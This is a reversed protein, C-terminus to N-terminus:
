AIMKDVDVSRDLALEVKEAPISLQNEVLWCIQHIIHLHVEQIRETDHSPVLLNYDGYDKAEGGDKGLLNVTTIGMENAQKLANVINQSNGSTSICLLLDGERGLAQVQRRFIHDLGFDNAWATMVSTESNLSIAAYGPREAIEFRGVLEAVFHQSEAASGGNGCVMIKGGNAIVRSMENSIEFIDEPLTDASQNFTQSAQRFFTRLNEVHKRNQYIPIVQKYLDQIQQSVYQWTFNHRVHQRARTGMTKLKAPDDLLKTMKLALSKPSKPPVWYGTEGDVVTYSIGGVDSGIVPTGCAMAELPTIGFPEYWPTTLFFESASYYYKLEERAKKGKFSVFEIIGLKIALNELRKMEPIGETDELDETNGGVILLRVDPYKAHILSFAEIVNDIGKRAVIRGLQLIYRYSQNLGLIQKASQPHIPHFDNPSYGCPIIEIKEVPAHYLEILDKKDNPCEAIIKDAHWIIEQEVKERELRFKDDSGQHMRCVAGLAHFTIVFPIELQKKVEVAVMGSLWFHAHLLDYNLNEEEIFNIMQESFENMYIMIEEKPIEVSPGATIHIVRVGQEFQVVEALKNSDRRTYVDVLYGQKALSRAVEAVYVNQGGCDVAGLTALPSAHDSVFAIRKEM